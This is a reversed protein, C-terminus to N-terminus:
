RRVLCRPEHGGDGLKRLAQSAEKLTKAARVGEGRALLTRGLTEKALAMVRQHKITRGLTLAEEARAEALDLDGQELAARAIRHLTLAEERRNGAGSFLKRAEALEAMARKGDRAALRLLASERLFIAARAGATKTDLRKLAARVLKEAREHDGIAILSRVLQARLIDGIARQGAVEWAEVARALLIAAERHNGRGVELLAKAASLYRRLRRSPAAPLEREVDQIRQSAATLDGVDLAIWAATLEAIHILDRDGWAYALDRYRDFCKKAADFDGAERYLDGVFGLATAARYLDGCSEYAVVAKMGESIAVDVRGAQAHLTALLRRLEGQHAADDKALKTLQKKAIAEAEPVRGLRAASQAARIAADVVGPEESRQLPEFAAVAEEHRGSDSYIRVLAISAHEQCWKDRAKALTELTQRASDSYGQRLRARAALLEVRQGAVGAASLSSLARLYPGVLGLADMTAWGDCLVEVAQEVDGTAAYLEATKVVAMPESAWHDKLFKAVQRLSSKPLEPDIGRVFIATSEHAHIEGGINSVFGRKVLISLDGAIKDAAPKSLPMGALRIRAVDRLEGPALCQLQSEVLSRFARTSRHSHQKLVDDSPVDKAPFSLLYNLVLPCCSAGGRKADADIRERVAAASNKCLVAVEDPTLVGVPEVPILAQDMASLDPDGAYGFLVRYNGPHQKFTRILAQLTTRDLMEANDLVLAAKHGHLLERIHLYPDRFHEGISSKTLRARIRAVLTENTEGPWVTLYLGRTTGAKVTLPLLELMLATKGNGPSGCFIFSSFHKLRAQFRAIYPARGVFTGPPSPFASAM